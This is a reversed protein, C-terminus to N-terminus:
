HHCTFRGASITHWPRDLGTALPSPMGAVITDNAAPAARASPAAGDREAERDIPIVAGDLPGLQRNGLTDPVRPLIIAGAKPHIRGAIIEGSCGPSNPSGERLFDARWEERVRAIETRIGVIVLAIKDSM